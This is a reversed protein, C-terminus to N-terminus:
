WKLIASLFRRLKYLHVQIVAFSPWSQHFSDTTFLQLMSEVTLVLESGKILFKRVRQQVKIAILNFFFHAIPPKHSGVRNAEGIVARLSCRKVVTSPTM